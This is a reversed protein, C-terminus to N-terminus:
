SNVSWILLPMWDISAFEIKVQSLDRNNDKDYGLVVKLADSLKGSHLLRVVYKLVSKQNGGFDNWYLKFLGPLEILKNKADVKVLREVYIRASKRLDEDVTDPDRLINM